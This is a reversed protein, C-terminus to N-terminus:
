LVLSRRLTFLVRALFVRDAFSKKLPKVSRGFVLLFVVL